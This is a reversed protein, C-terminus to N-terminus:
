MRRVSIDWWISIILVQYKACLKYSISITCDLMQDTFFPSQVILSYALNVSEKTEFENTLCNRSNMACVLSVWLLTNALHYCTTETVKSTAIVTLAQTGNQVIEQSRKYSM